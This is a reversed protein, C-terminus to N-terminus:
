RPAAAPAAPREGLRRVRRALRKLWGEHPSATGRRPRDPMDFQQDMLRRGEVLALYYSPNM